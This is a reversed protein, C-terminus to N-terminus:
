FPPTFGVTMCGATGYGAQSRRSDVSCSTGSVFTDTPEPRSWPVGVHEIRGRQFDLPHRAEWDSKCVMYGDWRKRLQDSKFEKGCQDCIANYCGPKYYKGM